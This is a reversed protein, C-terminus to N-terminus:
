PQSLTQAIAQAATRLNDPVDVALPDIERVVAGIQYAIAAAAPGKVQPQVFVVRARHERALATLHTLERDTPHKGQIEIPIQKLGYDAAFYGWSPHFVFFAEGRVGALIQTLEADLEDLQRQVAVLNRQYHDHHDPDAASLAKAVTSAQEKLLRPSTWIHPDTWVTRAKSHKEADVVAHGHRHDLGCDHGHSHGQPEMSRLTIGQRQDIITLKGAGIMAQFQPGSEAAVGIRIFLDGRLVATVERDTPQYTHPSEHPPLLARVAVREGGIAEVLWVQPPITVAVKMRGDQPEAGEGCGGLLTTLGLFAALGLVAGSTRGRPWWALLCGDCERRRCSPFGLTGAIVPTEYIRPRSSAPSPKHATMRKPSDRYRSCSRRHKIMKEISGAIRSPESCVADCRM